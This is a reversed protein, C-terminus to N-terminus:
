DFIRNPEALSRKESLAKESSEGKKSSLSSKSHSLLINLDDAIKGWIKGPELNISRTFTEGLCNLQYCIAEPLIHKFLSESKKLKILKVGFFVINFQWTELKKRKEEFKDTKRRVKHILVVNSIPRLNIGSHTKWLQANEVLEPGGFERSLKKWDIPYMTRKYGMGEIARPKGSVLIKLYKMKVNDDVAFGCVTSMFQGTWESWKQTDGSLKNLILDLLKLGMAILSTILNVQFNSFTAGHILNTSPNFTKDLDCVLITKKVGSSKKFSYHDFTAPEVTLRRASAYDNSTKNPCNSYNM